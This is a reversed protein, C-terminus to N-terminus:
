TTIDTQMLKRRLIPEDVLIEIAPNGFIREFCVVSNHDDGPHFEKKKTKIAKVSSKWLKIYLEVLYLLLM